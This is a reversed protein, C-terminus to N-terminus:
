RDPRPGINEIPIPEFGAVKEWVAPLKSLNVRRNGLM